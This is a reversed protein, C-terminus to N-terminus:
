GGRIARTIIIRSTQKLDEKTITQLMKLANGIQIAVYYGNQQKQQIEQLTLQHFEHGNQVIEVKFTEIKNM